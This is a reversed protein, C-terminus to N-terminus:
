VTYGGGISDTRPIVTTSNTGKPDTITITLCDWGARAGPATGAIEGIDPPVGNLWFVILANQGVGTPNPSVSNYCYSAQNSVTVADAIPLVAMLSAAVTLILFLAIPANTIKDSSFKVKTLITM